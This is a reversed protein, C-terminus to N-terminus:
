REGKWTVLRKELRNIFGVLLVAVISCLIVPAFIAGGDLQTMMRKSFYGLGTVSGLWEGITAGIIAAPASLRFASFLAPLAQPLNLKWLIQRKSAGYTQFLEELERPTAALADYLTIAFPFFSLLLTVIVKALIGYGFWLIFLPAIALIPITQSIVLSPYIAQRMFDSYKMGLAIGSGLVFSLFLGLMAVGVTYPLHVLLLVEKLEWFRRLVQWPTPLIYAADILLAVLTWLALLFLCFGLAPWNKKIKIQWASIKM